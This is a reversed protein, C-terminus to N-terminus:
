TRGVVLAETHVTSNVLYYGGASGGPAPDCCVSDITVAACDAPIAEARRGALSWSPVPLLDEANV